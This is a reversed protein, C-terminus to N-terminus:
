ETSMMWCGLDTGDVDKDGKFLNIKIYDVFGKSKALRELSTENERMYERALSITISSSDYIIAEDIDDIQLSEIDKISYHIQKTVKMIAVMCIHLKLNTKEQSTLDEIEKKLQREIKRTVQACFLYFSPNIRDNFLKQYVQENKVLSAPKARASHPERMLITMICQAMFPISIIRSIPKGINKYYNKRRDYYWDHQKFFDELNHHIRETAKLSAPPINTQFNTAKIIKDRAIEDDIIIIKILISRKEDDTESKNEGHYYRSIYNYICTTTQLGNIIQVNDLTIKKGSVSAHSALITIGNNLWWFDLDKEIELTINIDKNVEINGQFDRVNSEFIYKRLDNQEDVIFKFYDDLRSLVVYNDEGQSLFNEVFKLSLTYTKEIRSLDLLERAGILKIEIESHPFYNETIKKLLDCRNKLADTINNSNGKSAYIFHFRLKPHRSALNLFSKQFLTIKDIIQTNYYDRLVDMNKTLDFIDQCTTNFKEFTSESFGNSRKAQIIFLDLLVNKKYNEPDIEEEVLEEDAFFFLGDIGGDHSNSTRCSELENYSLDYNKLIQEFVFLEFFEFDLLEDGLEIKKQELISDLVVVDNDVM